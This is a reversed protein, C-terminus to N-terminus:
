SFLPCNTCKKNITCCVERGVKKKKLLGVAALRNIHFTVTPQRLSTLAVLNSVTTKSTKEMLHRFITFRPGISLVKFCSVCRSIM